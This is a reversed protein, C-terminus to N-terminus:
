PSRVRYFRAGYNTWQPDSFYFSNSTLTNTEIASWVPNSPNTCGEAVFTMGSAWTVNFGFQNTKGGTNANDVQMKPQWLATPLGGFTTGWGTTGSLYYVTAKSDLLFVSPVVSPANGTFYVGNLNRCGQFAGDYLGNVSGAITVNVLSRCDDFAYPEIVAVGDPITINTASVALAFALTGILTVPRGTITAPIVVDYSRTNLYNIIKITGDYNTRWLYDTTDQARVALPQASALFLLCALIRIRKWYSAKV